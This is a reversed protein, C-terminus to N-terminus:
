GYSMNSTTLVPISTTLVPISTALHHTASLFYCPKSPALAVLSIIDRRVVRAFEPALKERALLIQSSVM